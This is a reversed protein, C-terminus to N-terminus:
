SMAECLNCELVPQNKPAPQQVENLFEAMISFKLSIPFGTAYIERVLGKVKVQVFLPSTLLQM